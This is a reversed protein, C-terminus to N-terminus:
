LQKRYGGHPFKRLPIQTFPSNEIRSRLSFTPRPPPHPLPPTLFPTIPNGHPYYKTYKNQLTHSPHAFLKPLTERNGCHVLARGYIFSPIYIPWSRLNPVHAATFWRNAGIDLRFLSYRDSVYKNSLSANRPM